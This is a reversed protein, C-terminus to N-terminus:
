DIWKVFFQADEASARVPQNNITIYVPATHTQHGNEDMRRACLWGSQSVSLDTKLVFPSGPKASGDQKSVVKGNHVLELSGSLAEISTWTVEVDVTGKNNVRIDDGPQYQENVKMEIFERHGNRA